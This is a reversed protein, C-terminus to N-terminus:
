AADDTQRTKTAFALEFEVPTLKGLRRQPRHQNYDREIWIFIASALQLCETADRVCFSTNM